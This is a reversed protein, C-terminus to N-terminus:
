VSYQFRINQGERLKAKPKELELEAYYLHQMGVSKLYAMAEEWAQKLEGEVPTFDLTEREIGLMPGPETWRRLGYIVTVREVGEVFHQQLAKTLKEDVAKRGEVMALYQKQTEIRYGGSWMGEPSRDYRFTIFHPCDESSRHDTMLQKCVGNPRKGDAFNRGPVEKLSAHGNMYLLCDDGRSRVKVSSSDPYVQLLEHWLLATNSLPQPDARLMKLFAENLEDLEPYTQPM